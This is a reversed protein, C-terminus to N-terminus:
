KWGLCTQGFLRRGRAVAVVTHSQEITNALREFLAVAIEQTPVL